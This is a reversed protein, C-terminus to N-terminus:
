KILYSKLSFFILLSTTESVSSLNGYESLEAKPELSNGIELLHSHEM